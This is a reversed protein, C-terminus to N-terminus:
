TLKGLPAYRLREQVIAHLWALLFYLRARESPQQCMRSAPITSFTRLLNAKIGPPPEYVFIRSARLLNVPVKPNIEMTMFLRFNPHPTLTHLKKELTVLWQPALHVNKLLVWVGSKVSASIVKEAQNFGEASGIAISTCHSNTLTVLDDVRGSVDYGPMSCLLLPTTAKVENDVVNALDLEQQSQYLFSDGMVALVYKQMM